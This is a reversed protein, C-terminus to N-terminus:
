KAAPKASEAAPVSPAGPAQPAARKISEPRIAPIAPKGVTAGAAPKGAKSPSASEIKIGGATTSDAKPAPPADLLEFPKKKFSDFRWSSLKILDKRDPHQTYAYGTLTKSGKLEHFTGDKLGVKVWVAPTDLRVKSVNTDQASVFEDISMEAFRTAMEAALANKVRSSDQPAVMKWTSDSVAELKYNYAMGTSDKWIAEVSKVDKAVAGFLKRDKWDDDKTAIEWTFNGPTRYVEPKSEWKWYTSSYDAGSTKGIVVDAIVKGSGDKVSVHKAEASDLGYESLRAPSNSVLEKNQLSFVNNLVKNIKATDVKFGDKAIVWKGDRKVLESTDPKKVVRLDAVGAKATSDLAPADTSMSKENSNKKMLIVGLLALAAVLVILTRKM